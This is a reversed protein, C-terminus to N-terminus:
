SPPTLFQVHNHSASKLWKSFHLRKEGKALDGRLPQQILIVILSNSCGHPISSKVSQPQNHRGDWSSYGSFGRSKAMPVWTTAALGMYDPDHAGQFGWFQQNKLCKQPVQSNEFNELARENGNPHTQTIM